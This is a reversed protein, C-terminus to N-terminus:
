NKGQFGVNIENEGDKPLSQPVTATYFASTSM